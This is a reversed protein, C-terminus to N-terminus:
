WARRCNPKPCPSRRLSTIMSEIAREADQTKGLAIFCLARYQYAEAGEDGKLVALAEDYSAEAYLAKAKVLTDIVQGASISTTALVIAVLCCVGAFQPLRTKM